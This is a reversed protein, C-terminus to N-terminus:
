VAIADRESRWKSTQRASIRHTEAIRLARDLALWAMLKSHVHHAGDNREEWIGADPDRWRRAVEDAFGRLARWTESYLHHGADVLLWGADIVWGYGDLVGRRQPADPM